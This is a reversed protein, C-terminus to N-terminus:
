EKFHYSDRSHPYNRTFISTLLYRYTLYFGVVFFYIGAVWLGLLPDLLGGLFFLGAIIIQIFLALLFANIRNTAM